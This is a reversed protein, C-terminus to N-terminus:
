LQLQVQVVKTKSPAAVLVSVIRDFGVGWHPRRSIDPPFPLHVAVPDGAGAQRKFAQATRRPELCADRNFHFWFMSVVFLLAHVCTCTVAHRDHRTSAGLALLVVHIDSHMSFSRLVVLSLANSRIPKNKRM